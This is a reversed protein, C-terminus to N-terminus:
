TTSCVKPIGRESTSATKIAAPYSTYPFLSGSSSTNASVVAGSRSSKTPGTCGKTPGGSGSSSVSSCGAITSKTSGTGPTTVSSGDSTQLFVSVSSRLKSSTMLVAKSIKPAKLLSAIFLTTSITLSLPM